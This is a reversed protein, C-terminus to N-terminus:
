GAVTRNWFDISVPMVTKGAGLRFEIRQRLVRLLVDSRDMPMAARLAGRHDGDPRGPELYDALYLHVGLGEFSPHGVPHYAIALLLEEDAVGERVLRGAAAPAHIVPEPWDGPREPWSGEEALERLDALPAEKLADHLRAAARWRIREEEPLDLAEGWASLLDAVRESHRHRAASLRVWSPLEGRRGAADVIPHM